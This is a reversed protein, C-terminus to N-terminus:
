QGRSQQARAVIVWEKLLATQESMRQETNELKDTSKSVAELAIKTDNIQEKRIVDKDAYLKIIHRVCFMLALTLLAAVGWPGAEYATQISVADV